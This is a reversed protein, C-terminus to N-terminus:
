YNYYLGPMADHPFIGRYPFFSLFFFFFFPLFPFSFFTILSSLTFLNFYHSSNQPTESMRLSLIYSKGRSGVLPKAGQVGMNKAGGGGGMLLKGWHLGQYLCSDSAHLEANCALVGYKSAQSGM